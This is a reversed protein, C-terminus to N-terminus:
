VLFSTPPRYTAQAQHALSISTCVMRHHRQERGIVLFFSFGLKLTEMPALCSGQSPFHGDSFYCKDVSSDHCVKGTYNPPRSNYPPHSLSVKSWRPTWLWRFGRMDRGSQECPSRPLPSSFMTERTTSSSGIRLPTTASQAMKFLPGTFVAGWYTYSQVIEIPEGRYLFPSTPQSLRRPTAIYTNFIM